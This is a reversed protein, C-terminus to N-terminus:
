DLIEKLLMEDGISGGKIIFNKGKYPGNAFTGIGCGIFRPDNMDLLSVGLNAFIAQSTEGGIILIRDYKAKAAVRAAITCLAKEIDHAIPKKALAESVQRCIIFDRNDNNVALAEFLVEDYVSTDGSLIRDMNLSIIVTDSHNQLYNLQSQTAKYATGSFGITRIHPHTKYVPPKRLTGYLHNLLAEVIGTSGAWMVDPYVHM